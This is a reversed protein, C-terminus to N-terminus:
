SSADQSDEENTIDYEAEYWAINEKVQIDVQEQNLLALLDNTATIPKNFEVQQDHQIM